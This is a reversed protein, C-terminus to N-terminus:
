HEIIRLWTKPLCGYWSHVRGGVIGAVTENGFLCSLEARVGSLDCCSGLRVVTNFAMGAPRDASPHYEFPNGHHCYRGLTITHRYQNPENNDGPGRHYHVHARRQHKRPRGPPCFLRSWSHPYPYLWNQISLISTHHNTMTMWSSDPLIYTTAWKRRLANEEKDDWDKIIEGDSSEQDTSIETIIKKEPPLDHDLSSHQDPLSIM